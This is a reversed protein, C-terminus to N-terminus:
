RYIAKVRGWSASAAPVPQDKRYGKCSTVTWGQPLDPFTFEGEINSSSPAQIDAVAHIEIGIPAGATRQLTIDLSDSFPYATFPGSTKGFSWHAPSDGVQPELPTLDVHAQSDPCCAGDWNLGGHVRVRMHVAIPTGPAPGTVTFADRLWLRMAGGEGVAVQFKGAPIDFTAQEVNMTPGGCIKFFTPLTTTSFTDGNDDGSQCLVDSAPCVEAEAPAALAFAISLAAFPLLNLLRM